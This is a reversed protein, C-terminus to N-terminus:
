VPKQISASLISSVSKLRSALAHLPYEVTFLGKFNMKFHSISSPLDFYIGLSASKDEVTMRGWHYNTMEGKSGLLGAVDCEENEENSALFKIKPMGETPNLIGKHEPSHSPLSNWKELSISFTYMIPLARCGVWTAPLWKHSESGVARAGPSSLLSSARPRCTERSERPSWYARAPYLDRRVWQFVSCPPILHFPIEISYCSEKVMQM